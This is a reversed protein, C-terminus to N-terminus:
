QPPDDIPIVSRQPWLQYIFITQAQEDIEYILDFPFNKAYRRSGPNAKVRMGRITLDKGPIKRGSAPRDLMRGVTDEVAGLFDDFGSSFEGQYYVGQREIQDLAGKYLDAIYSM